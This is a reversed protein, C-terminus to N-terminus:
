AHGAPDPVANRVGKRRAGRPKSRTVIPMVRSAGRRRTAGRQALAAIHSEVSTRPLHWPGGKADQYAGVIVGAVAWRRWREDTYGHIQSAQTTTMVAPGGARRQLAAVLDAKRVTLTVQADDPLLAIAAVIEAATM